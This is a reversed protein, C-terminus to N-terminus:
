AILVIASTILFAFTFRPIRTSSGSDDDNDDDHDASTPIISSSSSRTPIPTTNTSNYDISTWNEGCM